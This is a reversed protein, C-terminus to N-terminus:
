HRDQRTLLVPAVQSLGIITMSAMLGQAAGDQTTEAHFNVVGLIGMKPLEVMHLFMKSLEMLFSNPLPISSIGVFSGGQRWDGLVVSLGELKSLTSCVNPFNPGQKYELPLEM